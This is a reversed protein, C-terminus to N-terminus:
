DRPNDETEGPRYNRQLDQVTVKGLSELARQQRPQQMDAYLRDYADPKNARQESGDSDGSKSPSGECM